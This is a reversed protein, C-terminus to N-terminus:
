PAYSIIMFTHFAYSREGQAQAEPAVEGDVLNGVGLAEVETQAEVGIVGRAEVEPSIVGHAEVEPTIMGHAEEKTIVGVVQVVGVPVGAQDM